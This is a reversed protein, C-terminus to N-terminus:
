SSFVAKRSAVLWTFVAKDTVSNHYLASDKFRFDEKVSAKLARVFHIASQEKLNNVSELWTANFFASFETDAGDKWRILLWIGWWWYGWHKSTDKALVILLHIKILQITASSEAWEIHIFHHEKFSFFFIHQWETLEERQAQWRYSRSIFM